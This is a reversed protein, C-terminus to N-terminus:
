SESVPLVWFHIRLFAPGSVWNWHVQDLCGEAAAVVVWCIAEMLGVEKSLIWVQSFGIIVKRLPFAKKLFALVRFSGILFIALFDIPM